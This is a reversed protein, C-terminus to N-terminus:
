SSRSRYPAAGCARRGSARGRLRRSARRPLHPAGGSASSPRSTASSRGGYEDYAAIAAVNTPPRVPDDSRARASPRSGRSSLARSKAVSAAAVKLAERVIECSLIVLKTRSGNTSSSAHLPSSRGAPSPARRAIPSSTVHVRQTPMQTAAPSPLACTTAGRNPRRSVHVSAAPAAFSKKCVANTDSSRFLSSSASREDRVKGRPASRARGLRKKSSRSGCSARSGTTRSRGPHRSRQPRSRRSTWRV